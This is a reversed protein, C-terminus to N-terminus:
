DIWHVIRDELNKTAADTESVLRGLVSRGRDHVENQSGSVLHHWKPLDGGRAVVRYACSDPLWDLKQINKPTLKLCDDVVSHRQDYRTCKCTGLDLLRCGLDTKYIEGTDIDEVRVVCCKGCGDCLSEWEADNLEELSKERWFYNETSGM